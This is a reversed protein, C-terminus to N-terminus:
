RKSSIRWNNENRRFEHDHYDLNKKKIEKEYSKLLMEEIKNQKAIENERDLVAFKNATHKLKSYAAFIITM